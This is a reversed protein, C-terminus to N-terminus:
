LAAFPNVIARLEFKLKARLQPPIPAARWNKLANILRVSDRAAAESPSSQSWNFKRLEAWVFLGTVYPKEPGSWPKDKLDNESRL